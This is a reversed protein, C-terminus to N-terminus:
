AGASRRLRELAASCNSQVEAVDACAPMGAIGPYRGVFPSGIAAAAPAALAAVALASARFRGMALTTEFDNAVVHSGQSYPRQLAPKMTGMGGADLLDFDAAPNREIWDNRVAM